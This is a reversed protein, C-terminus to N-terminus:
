RLALRSATRLRAAEEVPEGIALELVHFRAGLHAPHVLTQFQRISAPDPQQEQQRLWDDALRTLWAGQDRFEIPVAGLRIAEGAVATFDVHATIDREGPTELPDDGAQHKSFTRLTGRTREPLYYEPSAFGYDIWLVLGRSLTALLPALLSGYNRRIETRYGEPLPHPTEPASGEWASSTNWQFGSDSLAVRVEYWRGDKWEILECPLADLLENGFLIGPLPALADASAVTRFRSGFRELTVHQAAALSPLPELTVYELSSFALPGLTELAGLVDAALTGDHAGLETLRWPQPEGAQKWWKLFRHALLTGFIPGVSVSTFFDGGRGVQRTERAYYGRVPDYLARAMFDPFPMPGRLAIEAAIEDALTPTASGGAPPYPNPVTM